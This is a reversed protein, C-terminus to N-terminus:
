YSNTYELANLNVEYIWRFGDKGRLEILIEYVEGAMGDIYNPEVYTKNLDHTQYLSVDENGTLYVPYNVKERDVEVELDYLGEPL